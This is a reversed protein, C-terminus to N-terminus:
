FQTVGQLIQISAPPIVVYRSGSALEVWVDFVYSGQASLDQTDAPELYIKAVGGKPDSLEIEALSASTKQFLPASDDAKDRATFYLTAGTIDLPICTGYTESDPDTDKRSARVILTRSEGAYLTLSNKANLLSQGM